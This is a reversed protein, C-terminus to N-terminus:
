VVERESQAHLASIETHLKRMNAFLQAASLHGGDALADELYVNCIFTKVMGLSCEELYEGTCTPRTVVFL